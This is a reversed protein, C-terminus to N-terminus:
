YFNYIVFACVAYCTIFLIQLGPLIIRAFLQVTEGASLKTRQRTTKTDDLFIIKRKEPLHEILILLVIILFFVCLGFIIWIDVFKISSTQPLKSTITNNLTYMVLMATIAVPISTKFHEPKFYLAMQFSIPTSWQILFPNCNQTFLLHWQKM